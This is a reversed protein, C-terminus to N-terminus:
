GSTDMSQLRQFLTESLSPRSVEAARPTEAAPPLEKAECPGALPINRPPLEPPSMVSETDEEPDDVADEEELPVPYQLHTVLGMNEKRYFEILQDLKTFLRM